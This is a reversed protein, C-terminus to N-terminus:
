KFIQEVDLNKHLIRVVEIEKNNFYKYFILHSEVKTYRYNKRINSFDKGSLPFNAVYEIENFILNYYKDAQEISWNKLTYLWINEIDELTKERIKYEMKFINPM